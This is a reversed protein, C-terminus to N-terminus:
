QEFCYLPVDRDCAFDGYAASWHTTHTTDGVFGGEAGASSTWNSCTHEQWYLTGDDRTGTWVVSRGFIPEVPPAGGAETKDIGHQLPGATLAAYSEAIVTGDVLAYPIDASHTLRTAPSDTGDSLWAKFTGTLMAADAREQCKADAGELGGLDGKYTTSTVFVKLTRSCTVLVDVDADVVTGAGSSVECEEGAPAPLTEVTVLYPAGSRVSAAFEYTGSADVLLDDGGNNRLVLGTGRLGAVEVRTKYANTECAVKVNTVDATGVSGSADTVSCTQSPLTPQTLVAISYTTGNAVAAFAFSTDGSDPAVTAAGNLQLVLGDGTLGSISGGVSYTDTTCTVAVSVDSTAVTGAGGEVTCTQAPTQPNTKVTVAYSEGTALLTPFAFTGDVNVDIDDGANNQLVLGSGSLGSVTGGVAHLDTCNVTVTTVPGAVVTGAGGSVVCRQPPGGPQTKVAVDFSAGSPVYKSFTAKVPSGAAATVALDDGGDNTLVLGSGALGVVTVSVPYENTSCTVRVDTVDAKARGRGGTVICTQAPGLPQARVKVDYSAGNAITEPFTFSTSSRTVVATAGNSELVLGSGELGRVSGGLTFGTGAEAGADASTADSPGADSPPEDVGTVDIGCGAAGALSGALVVLSTLFTRARAMVKWAVPRPTREAVDNPALRWIPCVM